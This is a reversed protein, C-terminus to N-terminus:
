IEEMNDRDKWHRGDLTQGWLVTSTVCIWIIAIAAM